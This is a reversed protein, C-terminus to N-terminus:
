KLFLMKKVQRFNEAELSYFYLGSSVANGQADRGNWLTQHNGTNVWGKELTIVKQGLVNYVSLNVHSPVPLSFTITTVPNFPNPYNQDLAFTEPISAEIKAVMGDVYSLEGVILTM